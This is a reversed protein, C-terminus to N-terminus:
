RRMGGHGGTGGSTSGSAVEILTVSRPGCVDWESRMNRMDVQYRGGTRRTVDVYPRPFGYAALVRKAAAVSHATRLERRTPVHCFANLSPASGVLRLGTLTARSAAFTDGGPVGRSGGGTWAGDRGRVIPWDISHPMNILLSGIDLTSTTTGNDADLPADCARVTTSTSSGADNANAMVAAKGRGTHLNLYVVVRVKAAASVVGDVSTTITGGGDPTCPVSLPVQHFAALAAPWGEGDSNRLFTFAFNWTATSAQQYPETPHILGGSDFTLTGSATGASAAAPLATAALLAVLAALMRSRNM